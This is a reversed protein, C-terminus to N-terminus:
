YQIMTTRYDELQSQSINLFNLSVKDWSTLRDRGIHDQYM